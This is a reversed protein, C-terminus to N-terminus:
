KVKRDELEEGVIGRLEWGTRGGRDMNGEYVMGKEKRGEVSINRGVEERGTRGRYGKM